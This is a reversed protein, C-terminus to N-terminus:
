GGYPEALDIGVYNSASDGKVDRVFVKVDYEDGAYANFKVEFDAGTGTVDVKNEIVDLTTNGKVLKVVIYAPRAAGTVSGTVVIGSNKNVTASITHSYGVTVDFAQTFGHYTIVVTKTGITSSDFGSIMEPMVVLDTPEGIDYLVKVALGTLDLSEGIVYATKVPLTQIEIGTPLAATVQFTRSGTTSGYGVVAKYTGATETDAIGTTYTFTGNTITIADTDLVSGNPRYIYINAKPLTTTGTISVSSGVATNQIDYLTVEEAASVTFPIMTFLIVLILLSSVIKKM